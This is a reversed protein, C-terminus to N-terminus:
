TWNTWTFSHGRRHKLNLEHRSLEELLIHQQTECHLPGTWPAGTRTRIRNGWANGVDDTLQQTDRFCWADPTVWCWGILLSWLCSSYLCSCCSVSWFVFLFCMLQLQANMHHEAGNFPCNVVVACTHGSVQLAEMVDDVSVTRSHTSLKVPTLLNLGQFM